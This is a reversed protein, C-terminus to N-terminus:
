PAREDENAFVIDIHPLLREFFAHENEVINWSALDLASKQSRVNIRFNSRM